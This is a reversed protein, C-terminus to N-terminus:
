VSKYIVYGLTGTDLKRAAALGLFGNCVGDWVDDVGLGRADFVGVRVRDGESGLASTRVWVNKFAREGTDKFHKCMAYVLVAAPPVVEGESLCKQQGDWTKSFSDKAPELSVEWEGAAIREAAFLERKYWTQDYFCEPFMARVELLSLSPFQITIKM